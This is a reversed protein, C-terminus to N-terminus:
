LHEMEDRIIEREKGGGGMQKINQAKSTHSKVQPFPQIHLLVKFVGSSGEM